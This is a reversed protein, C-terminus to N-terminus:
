LLFAPPTPRMWGSCYNEWQMKITADERSVCFHDSFGFCSAIQWTLNLINLFIIFSFFNDFQLGQEELKINEVADLNYKYLCSPRLWRCKLLLLVFAQTHIIYKSRAMISLLTSSYVAIAFSISGRLTVNRVHVDIWYYSSWYHLPDFLLSHLLRGSQPLIGHSHRRRSPRLLKGHM